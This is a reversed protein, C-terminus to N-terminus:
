KGVDVLSLCLLSHIIRDAIGYNLIGTPYFGHCIQNRLNLGRPDTYLIKFYYSVDDPLIKYEIIDNLIDDFTKLILGGDRIRKYINFGNIEILNRLIEEVQPILIHIAAIYNQEFYFKLGSEIVTKKDIEFIPSKYLHNLLWEASFNEKEILRNIIARFFIPLLVMEDAILKFLHGENKERRKLYNSEELSDVFPFITSITRGKYDVIAKPILRYSAYINAYNELKEYEDDLIPIYRLTINLITKGLGDKTIDDVFADLEENSIKYPIEIKAFEGMSKKESDRLKVAISDVLDHLEYSKLVHFLKKLFFSIRIASEDEINEVVSIYKIMVIRMKELLGNKKYYDALRTAVREASSEYEASKNKPTNKLKELREELGNIIKDEIEKTVLKKAKKDDIINDYSFGWLGCLNNEAIQEEYDIIIDRIKESRTTDHINISMELAWELYVFNYNIFSCMNKKIIEIISDVAIQVFNQNAKLKKEKAYEWCLGSYQLKLIPNNVEDMREKWYNLPNEPALESLQDWFKNELGNKSIQPKYWCFAFKEWSYEKLKLDDPCSDQLKLIETFVDDPIFSTKNEFSSISDKLIKIFNSM